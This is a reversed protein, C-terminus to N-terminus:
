VVLGLERLKLYVGNHECDLTVDNAVSKVWNNARMMAVGYAADRLMEYDNSSDGFAILNKDRNINLYECLWKLTSSKTSNKPGIFVGKSWRATIELNMNHQKILEKAKESCMSSDEETKTGLAIIHMHNKDVKNFDMDIIKDIHPKLFWSDIIMNPSKFANNIDTLLFNECHNFDSFESYLVKLENYKIIKEYIIKKNQVDYVFAGNAGIFYDIDNSKNLLEGITVFERASALITTIGKSKLQRFTNLVTENFQLQGHELLTGDIDFAAAKINNQIEIRTM